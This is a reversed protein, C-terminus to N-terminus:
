EWSWVFIWRFFRAIINEERVEEPALEAEEEDSEDDDGLSSCGSDSSMYTEGTLTCQYSADYGGGSGPTIDCGYLVSARLAGVFVACDEYSMFEGSGLGGDGDRDCGCIYDLEEDRDIDCGGTFDITGDSDDDVYNACANEEEEVCAGDSCSYNEGLSSCEFGEVYIYINSTGGGGCWYEALLDETECSEEVEAYYFYGALVGTLSGKVIPDNGEDTETCPFCGGLYVDGKRDCAAGNCEEDSSCSTYCSGTAEDCIYDGCDGDETCIGEEDEEVCDDDEEYYVGEKDEGPGCTVGDFAETQLNSCGYEESDECDLDESFGYASFEETSADYCGCVFDIVEDADTDCGGTADVLSDEDNDEWDDCDEVLAVCSGSECAEDSDCDGDAECEVCVGSADCHGSACLTDDSCSEGLVLTGEECISSYGEYYAELCLGEAIDQTSDEFATYAAEVLSDFESYHQYVCDGLAIKTYPESSDYTLGYYDSSYSELCSSFTSPDLFSIVWSFEEYHDAVCALDSGELTSLCTDDVASSVEIQYGYDRESADTEDLCGVDGTDVDGDGDNDISDACPTSLGFSPSSFLLVIFLVFFLKKMREGRLLIFDM